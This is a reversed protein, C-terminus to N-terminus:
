GRDRPSPSTYLLCTYTVNPAPQQNISMRNDAAVAHMIVRDGPSLNFDDPTFISQATVRGSTALGGVPQEKQLNMHLNRDHLETGQHDFQLDVSKIEFDLDEARVEVLLPQNVPLMVEKEAPRVIEVQPGLDAIVRIPYTNPNENRFGNESVFRVRYHTYRQKTRKSNLSAVFRGQAENGEFNMKIDESTFEEEDPNESKAQLLEM